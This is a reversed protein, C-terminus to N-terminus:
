NPVFFDFCPLLRETLRIFTSFCDVEPVQHVKTVQLVKSNCLVELCILPSAHEPHSSTFCSSSYRATKVSCPAEADCTAASLNRSVIEFTRPKVPSARSENGAYVRRLILSGQPYNRRDSSYHGQVHILIWGRRLGFLEPRDQPKEQFSVKEHDCHFPSRKTFFVDLFHRVFISPLFHRCLLTQIHCFLVSYGRHRAQHWEFLRFSVAYSWWTYFNQLFVDVEFRSHLSIILHM